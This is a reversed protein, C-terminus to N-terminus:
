RIYNQFSYGLSAQISIITKPNYYGIQYLKPIGIISKLKNLFYSETELIGKKKHILKQEIKIIFLENTFIDKCLIIQIFNDKEIFKIIKYKELLIKGKTLHFPFNNM